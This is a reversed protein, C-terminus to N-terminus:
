LEHEKCVGCYTEGSILHVNLSMRNLIAQHILKKRLLYKENGWFIIKKSNYVFWSPSLDFSTPEKNKQWIEM